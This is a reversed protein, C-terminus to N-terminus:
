RYLLDDVKTIIKHPPMFEGLTTPPAELDLLEKIM